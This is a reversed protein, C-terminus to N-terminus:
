DARQREGADIAIKLYRVLSEGDENAIFHDFATEARAFRVWIKNL